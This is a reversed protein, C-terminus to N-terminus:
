EYVEKGAPARGRRRGRSGAGYETAVEAISILIRSSSGSPTVTRAKVRLGGPAPCARRVVFRLRNVRSASQRPVGIRPLLVMDLALRRVGKLRSSYM